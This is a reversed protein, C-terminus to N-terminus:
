SHVPSEVHLKPCTVQNEKSENVTMFLLPFPDFASVTQTKEPCMHLVCLLLKSIGLIFQWLFMEHLHDMRTAPQQKNGLFCISVNRKKEATAEEAAKQYRQSIPLLFFFCLLKLSSYQIIVFVASIENGGLVRHM